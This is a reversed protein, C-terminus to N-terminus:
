RKKPTGAARRVAEVRELLTGVPLGLAEALKFVTGLRPDSAGTEISSLTPRQINALDALEEQSIGREVRLAKIARGFATQVSIGVM